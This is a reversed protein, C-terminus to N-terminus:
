GILGSNAVFTRFQLVLLVVLVVAAFAGTYLGWTRLFVKWDVYTTSQANGQFDRTVTQQRAIGIALWLALVMGAASWEFQRLLFVLGEDLKM